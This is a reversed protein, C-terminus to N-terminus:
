VNMKQGSFVFFSNSHYALSLGKLMHRHVWPVAKQSCSSARFHVGSFPVGELDADQHQAEAGTELVLRM